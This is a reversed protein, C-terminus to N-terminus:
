IIFRIIQFQKLLNNRYDYLLKENEKSSNNNFKLQNFDFEPEYYHKIKQFIKIISLINDYVDQNSSFSNYRRIEDDIINVKNRINVLTYCKFYNPYRNEGSMQKKYSRFLDKIDILMDSEVRTESYNNLLNLIDTCFKFNKEEKFNCQFIEIWEYKCKVRNLKFRNYFESNINEDAYRGEYYLERYYDQEDYYEDYLSETMRYLNNILERIM